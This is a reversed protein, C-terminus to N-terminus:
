GQRLLTTRLGIILYKLKGNFEVHPYRFLVTTGLDFDPLFCSKQEKQFSVSLIAVDTYHYLYRDSIVSIKFKMGYPLSWLPIWTFFRVGILILITQIRFVASICTKTMPSYSQSYQVAPSTGTGSRPLASATLQQRCIVGAGEQLLIVRWQESSV